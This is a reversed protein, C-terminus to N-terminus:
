EEMTKDVNLEENSDPAAGLASMLHGTIGSTLYKAQDHKVDNILQKIEEEHDPFQEILKMCLGDLAYSSVQNGSEQQYFQSVARQVKQQIENM